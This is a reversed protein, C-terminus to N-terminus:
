ASVAKVYRTAAAKLTAPDNAKKLYVRTGDAARGVMTFFSGPYITFSIGAASAHLQHEGYEDATASQSWTLKTRNAKLPEEAQRPNPERQHCDALAKV